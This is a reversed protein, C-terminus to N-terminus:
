KVAVKIPKTRAEERKPVSITLVGNRFEAKVKDADVPCPLPTQRLFSGYSREARHWTKGKEERESRKEGKITLVDGALTVEVDKPDLGPLETKVMVDTDTEAVDLAPAWDGLSESRQFPFGSFFEDLLRNVQSQLTTLEGNVARMRPILNM